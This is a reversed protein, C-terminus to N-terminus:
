YTASPPRKELTKALVSELEADTIRRPAGSMDRGERILPSQPIPKRTEGIGGAHM